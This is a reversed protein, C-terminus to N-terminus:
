LRQENFVHMDKLLEQFVGWIARSSVFLKRRECIMRVPVQISFSVTSLLSSSIIDLVFFDIRIAKKM